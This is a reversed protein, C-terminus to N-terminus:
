AATRRRRAGGARALRGTATLLVTGPEPVVSPDPVTPVGGEGTAFDFALATQYATDSFNAVGLQLQYTGATPVVYSALVWGTFGCGTAYCTGSSGGLAAFMPAGPTVTVTAPNVTVGPAVPPLGFGPVTNGGPTTRATFLTTASEGSLLRAFAYDAFGAGDSTVFNFAFSLTQGASATFGTSTLLSGNTTGTIGLVNINSSTGGNTTVYGYQAGGGPALTVVGNAASTGCSGLCTYGDPIGDNFVQAAAPAASVALGGLVAVATLKSRM